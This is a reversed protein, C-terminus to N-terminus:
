FKISLLNQTRPIMKHLNVIIIFLSLQATCIIYSKYQIYLNILLWFKQFNVHVYAIINFQIGLLNLMWIEKPRIGLFSNHVKFQCKKGIILEM